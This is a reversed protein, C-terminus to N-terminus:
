VMWYPIYFIGGDKKLKDKTIILANKAGYGRMFARVSKETKDAINQQYSISVPLPSDGANIIIDIERSGDKWFYTEGGRSAAYECAMYRCSQAVHKEYDAAIETNRLLANEIGTDFIFLRKNKRIVRGKQASNMTYNELVGAFGGERLSSLYGIITSTDVYLARGISGFSQESKGFTAILFMLKKLKQPSKIGYAAAIDRYLSRDIIDLLACQRSQENESNFFSPYGGYLLYEDMIQVKYPKFDGLAYASESLVEFYEGPNEFLPTGPLLSKYRILDIDSNKYVSYFEAFQQQTLPMVKIKIESEAPLERLSLGSLTQSIVFKINATKKIYNLLYVQWDEIFQIDDIFIYVPAKLAFLNEHLIDTAFIELISGISRREGFLTMEDGSFFLIRQAPVQSQLLYSVTQYLLSTKGVGSPGIVNTIKNNELSNVIEKFESRIRKYRYANGTEGTKWWTNINHLSYVPNM